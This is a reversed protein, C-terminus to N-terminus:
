RPPAIVPRIGELMYLFVLISSVLMIITELLGRKDRPWAMALALPYPADVLFRVLLKLNPLLVGLLGLAIAGIIWAPLMSRKSVIYLQLVLLVVPLLIDPRIVTGWFFAEITKLFPASYLVGGRAVSVVSSKGAALVVFGYAIWGPALVYVSRQVVKRVNRRQAIISLIIAVTYYALTWPHWLGLFISLLIPTSLKGSSLIYYPLLLAAPLALLNTQLGAYLFFPAWYTIALLAGAGAMLPSSTERLVIVWSTVALLAFGILPVIIDFFWPSCGTLSAPVTVLLAYLPRQWSFFARMYSGEQYYKCVRVNYYTDFSIVKNFGYVIHPILVALTGLVVATALLVVGTRLFKGNVNSRTGQGSSRPRVLILALAALIGLFISLLFEGLLSAAGLAAINDNFPRLVLFSASLLVASPALELWYENLVLLILLSALFPAWWQHFLVLSFLLLALLGLGKDVRCAFIVSAQAGILFVLLQLLQEIQHFPKIIAPRGPLPAGGLYATIASLGSGVGLGLLLVLIPELSTGRRRPARRKPM